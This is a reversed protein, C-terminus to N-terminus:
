SITTAHLEAFKLETIRVTFFLIIRPQHQRLGTVTDGAFLTYMNFLASKTMFGQLMQINRFEGLRM